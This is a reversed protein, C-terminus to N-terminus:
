QPAAAATQDVGAIQMTVDLTAEEKTNHQITIKVIGVLEEPSETKELFDVLQKLSVAQMKMEVMSQKFPESGLSESPKMFAIHEKLQSDAANKELFSFLSFGAERKELLAAMSGSQQNLQRYREQMVRMETVAKKREALGRTLKARKGALPVVMFQLVLFLLLALGAIAVALKERQTLQKM